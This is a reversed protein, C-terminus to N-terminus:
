MATGPLAPDPGHSVGGLAEPNKMGKERPKREPMREYERM